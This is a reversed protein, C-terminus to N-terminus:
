VWVALEPYSDHLLVVFNDRRLCSVFAGVFGLYPPNTTYLFVEGRRRPLVHLMALPLLFTVSNLVRGILSDKSLRTSWLRKVRVGNTFENRPCEQWTEPPGYSPRCTLVTVEAGQTSLNEALEFLLHGTSAVDPVYYQNLIVVRLRDDNTQEKSTPTSTDNM